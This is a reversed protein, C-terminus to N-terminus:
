RTPQLNFYIIIPMRNEKTFYLYKWKIIESKKQIIQICLAIGHEPHSQAFDLTDSCLNSLM